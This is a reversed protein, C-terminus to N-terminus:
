RELELFGSGAVPAVPSSEKQVDTFATCYM